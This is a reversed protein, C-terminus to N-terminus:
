SAQSAWSNKFQLFRAKMLQDLCATGGFLTRTYDELRLDRGLVGCVRVPALWVGDSGPYTRGKLAAHGTPRRTSLGQRYWRVPM